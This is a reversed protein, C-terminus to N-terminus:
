HAYLKLEKMHALQANTTSTAATLYNVFISCQKSWSLYSSTKGEFM